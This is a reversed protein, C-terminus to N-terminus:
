IKQKHIGEYNYIFGRKSKKLKVETFFMVSHWTKKLEKRKVQGLYSKLFHLRYHRSLFATNLFSCNLRTTIVPLECAMAELCVNSFPDHFTPLIFM